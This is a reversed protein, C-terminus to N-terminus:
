YSKSRIAGTLFVPVLMLRELRTGWGSWPVNYKSMPLNDGYILDITKIEDDKLKTSDLIDFMKIGLEEDKYLGIYHVIGSESNFSDYECTEIYLLFYEQGRIIDIDTVLDFYENKKVIQIGKIDDNDNLVKIYM